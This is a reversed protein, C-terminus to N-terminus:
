GLRYIDSRRDALYNHGARWADVTSRKVEATIIAAGQDDAGALVSGDPATIRSMGIFNFTADRGVVNAYVVHCGNEYGRAPVLVDPVVSYPRSTASIVILTDAGRLVLDRAAEAFELDYCILLGLKLGDWEMVPSPTGPDFLSKEYPGWLNVKRYNGRVAGDPGIAIASNFRTAGAQEAYGTILGKGGRRALEGVQRIFASDQEVALRQVRGAEGYGCLALEPLVILEAEPASDIARQVMALAEDHSEPPTTTQAVAIHLSNKM